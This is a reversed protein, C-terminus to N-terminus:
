PHDLGWIGKSTRRRNGLVSRRAAVTRKGDDVLDCNQSGSFTSAAKGDTGMQKWRVFVARIIEGDTEGFTREEKLKEVLQRQQQNFGVQVRVVKEKEAM